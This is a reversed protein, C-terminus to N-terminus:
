IGSGLMRYVERTISSMSGWAMPVMYMSVPSHFITTGLTSTTAALKGVSRGSSVCAQGGHLVGPSNGAADVLGMIGAGVAVVALFRLRRNVLM